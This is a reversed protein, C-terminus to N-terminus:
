RRNTFRRWRGTSPSTSATPAGTPLLTKTSRFPRAPFDATVAEAIDKVQYNWGNSGANVALYRGGNEAPRTIAWEIARAMDSVDILPRWRLGDSLM